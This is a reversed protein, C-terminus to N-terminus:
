EDCLTQESVEERLSERLIEWSPWPVAGSQHRRLWELDLRWVSLVRRHRLSNSQYRRQQGNAQVQLGAVMVAVNALMSILLLSEIRKGQRSRHMGFGLGFLPSKIDRFGEEIQMRQRYIAVLKYALM